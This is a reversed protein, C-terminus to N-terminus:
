ASRTRTALARARVDPNTFGGRARGKNKMDAMNDAHTGLFLHEVNVCPPNDCRHCVEMGAPITGNEMEWAVRHALAPYRDIQIRGYGKKDILGTWELCGSDSM